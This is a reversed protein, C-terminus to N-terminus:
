RRTVMCQGGQAQIQSCLAAAADRSGAPVRARYYTGKAGLDARQVDLAKGSLASFRRQADSFSRRADAESKSASIQVMWEGGGSAPAASPTIPTPAAVRTPPPPAAARPPEQPTSALRPAVPGLAMPAGTGQPATTSPKPAVPKPPVIPTTTVTKVPPPAAVPRTPTEVPVTPVPAAATTPRGPSPIPMPVSVAKGAPAVPAAETQPVAISPPIAAAQPLMPAASQTTVRTTTVPVMTPPVTPVPPVDPAKAEPAPATPAPAASPAAGGPGRVQAGDSVISGDPRVVVTKVTHPQDPSSPRQAGPNIVRVERGEPTRGAVHEVPDEQLSIIKSGDVNTDRKLAVEGEGVPPPKTPDPLIKLPKGDAQVLVPGRSKPDGYLKWGALAAGGALLVGVVAAAIKFGSRGSEHPLQRAEYEEAMSHPLIVGDEAAYPSAERAARAIETPDFEDFTPRQPEGRRTRHIEAAFAADLDVAPAPGPDFAPDYSGAAVGDDYAYYDAWRPDVPAPETPAAVIPDEIPESAAYSRLSAIDHDDVPHQPIIRPVEREFDGRVRDEPAVSSRLSEFLEAELDSVQAPAPSKPLTRRGVEVVHEPRVPHAAGEGLIRALEALPDEAASRSRPGQGGGAPDAAHPDYVHRVPESM